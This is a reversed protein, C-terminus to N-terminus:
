ERMVRAIAELEAEGLIGSAGKPIEPKSNSQRTEYWRNEHCRRVILYWDKWRNRNGTSQAAEDVYTICRHLEELGLQDRLKDYQQGTLKIWGFEGFSQKECCIGAADAPASGTDITTSISTSETTSTTKTTTRGKKPKERSEEAKEPKKSPRGGKKGKAVAQEYKLRARKLDELVFSWFIACAQDLNEPEKDEAQYELMALLLDGCQKRTLKAKRIMPLYRNWLPGYDMRKKEMTEDEKLIKEISYWM